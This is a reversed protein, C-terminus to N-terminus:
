ILEFYILSKFMFVLATISSSSFMTSFIGTM